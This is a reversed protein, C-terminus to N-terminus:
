YYNGYNITYGGDSSTGGNTTVVIGATTNGPVGSALTCIIQTANSGVILAGGCIPPSISITNLPGYLNTGTITLNGGGNFPCSSLATGAVVCYPHSVSTVTPVDAYSVTFLGASTSGGNTTIVVDPVNLLQGKGRTSGALQCLIQTSTINMATSSQCGASVTVTGAPGDFGSGTITLIGGGQPPCAILNNNTVSCSAHAIGTIVPEVAFTISYTPTTDGGNCAVALGTYNAGPSDSQLPCLAMTSNVPICASLSTLHLSTGTITVNGGGVVPCAYLSLPSSNLCAPHSISTLTPVPSYGITFGTATTNGGNTTAVINATTSGAAGPALACIIQTANVFTINGTCGVNVSVSGDFPEFFRTGTITLNGGGAVPCYLLASNNAICQPHSISIIIPPLAYNIQPAPLSNTGADNQVLINYTIGGVHPRLTCILQTFDANVTISGTCGNPVIVNGYFNSGTVTLNGGGAIPCSGLVTGNFCYPHSAGTVVPLSQYTINFGANSPTSGGNTSIVVTGTNSGISGSALTCFITTSNFATVNGACGTNMTISGTPGDLNAGTITLNGGGGPPCAYLTTGIVICSSHSLALLVPALAYVVSCCGPTTGGNTIVSISSTVGNANSGLQCIIQTFAANIILNGACVGAPGVTITGPNPGHFYNGNITLNGGGAIPCAFLNAGATSCGIDTIGTVNPPSAYGISFASPTYGGNTHIVSNVTSGAPGGPLTCLLQTSSVVVPNICGGGSITVSGSYPNVFNTGSITVNGGGGVACYQLPSNGSCSPHSVGTITPVSAYTLSITDNNAGASNIITVPSVAFGAPQSSLTCIIQTYASNITYPLQCITPVYISSNVGFSTGTITLLGGGAVPCDILNLGSTGCLPHSISSIVPLPSYGITIGTLITSGGLTTITINPTTSGIVGSALTCTLTGGQNSSTLNGICGANVTITIGAFNIGTITLIGGGSPPCLTLSTNGSCNQHALGQLVPKYAVSVASLCM